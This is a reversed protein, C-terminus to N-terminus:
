RQSASQRAGSLDYLSRLVAPDCQVGCGVEAGAGDGASAAAAAAAGLAHRGMGAAALSGRLPMSSSLRSRSSGTTGAAAAAAATEGERTRKKVAGGPTAAAAAALAGAATGDFGLGQTAEALRQSAAVKV